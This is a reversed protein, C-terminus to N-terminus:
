IDGHPQTDLLPDSPAAFMPYDKVTVETVSFAKPREVSARPNAKRIAGAGRLATSAHHRKAKPARALCGCSGHHNVLAVGLIVCIAGCVDAVIEGTTLHALEGKFIAGEVVGVVPTLYDVLMQRVAGARQVLFFQLVYVICSSCLGLYLIAAWADPTALRLFEWRKAHAATQVGTYDVLFSAVIAVVAGCATQGLALPLVRVHSLFKHALVSAAAKSLVAVVIIAHGLVVRAMTLHHTSSSGGIFSKLSLLVIGVFGLFLGIVARRVRHRALEAQRRPDGLSSFSGRQHFHDPSFEISTPTNVDLHRGTSAFSRGRSRKPGASLATAPLMFASLVAAMLPATGAIIAATGVEVGNDFGFSDPTVASAHPVFKALCNLVANPRHVYM